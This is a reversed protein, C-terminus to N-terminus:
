LHFSRSFASTNILWPSILYYSSFFVMGTLWSWCAFCCFLGLAYPATSKSRVLGYGLSLKHWRCGGGGACLVVGVRAALAHGHAGAAAREVEDQAVM